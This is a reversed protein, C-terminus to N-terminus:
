FSSHFRTVRSEESPASESPAEESPAEEALVPEESAAPAESAAPIAPQAHPQRGLRHRLGSLVRRRPLQGEQEQEQVVTTVEPAPGATTEAPDPNGEAADPEAPAPPVAQTPGVDPVRSGFGPIASFYEAAREAEARWTQRMAATDKPQEEAQLGDELVDVGPGDAM